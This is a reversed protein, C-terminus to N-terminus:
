PSSCHVWCKFFSRSTKARALRLNASIASGSCIPNPAAAVAPPHRNVQRVEDMLGSFHDAVGVFEASRGSSAARRSLKELVWAGLTDLASVGSMDLTVASSRDVDAGVSRSLTELASVNAATWPGEPRLKLADGSPTALLLPESNM